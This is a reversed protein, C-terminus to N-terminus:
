GGGRSAHPGAQVCSAKSGAKGVQQESILLLVPRSGWVHKAQVCSAEFGAEDALDLHVGDLCAQCTGNTHTM